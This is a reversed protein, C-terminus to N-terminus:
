AAKGEPIYLWFHAGSYHAPVTFPDDLTIKGHHDDIIKKVIALGLGTGKTKTTVYPEMVSDRRNAPIGPGNDFVGLWFGGPDKKLSLGIKPGTVDVIADVANQVLNTLAQRMQQADAVTKWDNDDKEFSFEVGANAASQLALVEQVLPLLDLPAMVPEPMKGFSSFANVMNKIDEVHRVITDTCKQLVDRDNEDTLHDLYKRKIREASLQIPTLPNKIEHAIRRAVDAWAASKQAAVLDTIDDFAVITGQGAEGVLETSYRIRFRRPAGDRRLVSIDHEGGRTGDPLADPLFDVLNQGILKDNSTGLMNGAAPNALTIVGKEDIGMIGTSVGGLVTETFRRRYDLRQNAEILENRQRAIEQTMRNFARGLTVFEELGKVEGVRADMDGARLRESATIVASIPEVMRRALTLGFWIAITMMLLVVIVYLITITMQIRGSKAALEQYQSVAAKTTDLHTLVQPDVARGVYLYVEEGFGELQVMARLRDDNESPEIAVYGARAQDILEDPIPNFVMSLAIGSQAIVKRDADFIIAESFNRLFSQTNLMRELQSHNISLALSQRQLDSAMAQIDSRLVQQHENLYAQAVALSEDVATRVRTDFWGHVGYYFLGVSFVTTVIAPFAVLISFLGVLRVQLASGAVGRRSGAWLSVVRKAVTVILMLLIVLDINLLLILNNADGSLPSKTTMATYTMVGMILALIVLALTWVNGLAYRETWAAFLAARRLLARRM